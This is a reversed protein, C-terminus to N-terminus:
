RKEGKFGTMVTIFPEWNPLMKEAKSGKLHSLIEELTFFILMQAKLNRQVYPEVTTALRALRIASSGSTPLEFGAIIIRAHFPKV